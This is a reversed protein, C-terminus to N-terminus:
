EMTDSSQLSTTQSSHLRPFSPADVDTWSGFSYYSSCSPEARVEAGNSNSAPATQPRGSRVRPTASTTSKTRPPETAMELENNLSSRRPGPKVAPTQSYLQSPAGDSGEIMTWRARRMAELDRSSMKMRVSQLLMADDDGGDKQIPAAAPAAEFGM